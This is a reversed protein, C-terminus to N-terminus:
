LSLIVSVWDCHFHCVFVSGCHFVSDCLIRRMKEFLSVWYFQIQLVFLYVFDFAMWYLSQFVSVRKQFNEKEFGM